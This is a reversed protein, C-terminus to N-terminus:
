PVRTWNESGIAKGSARGGREVEAVSSESNMCVTLLPSLVQSGLQPAAHQAARPRERVDALLTTSRARRLARPPVIRPPSVIWSGSRSVFAM